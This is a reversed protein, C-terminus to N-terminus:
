YTPIFDDLILFDVENELGIAIGEAEGKGLRRGLANVLKFNQAKIIEIKKLHQLKHLDNSAEDRRKLIEDYVTTPIYVNNFLEITKELMDLKSLFIWPSSNFVVVM